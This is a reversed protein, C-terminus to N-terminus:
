MKQKILKQWAKTTSSIAEAPTKQKKFAAQLNEDLDRFILAGEPMLPRNRAVLLQQKFGQLIENKSLELNEYASKRTPLLNQEKAFRVQQQTSNIYAIFTAAADQQKSGRYLVYGHGGVPSGQEGKPGKPILAIGLQQKNKFASGSLIETVAWPGNFMMAYKGEKFGTMANTYANVFDLKEPSVKDVFVLDLFAQLAAQSAASDLSVKRNQEDILNGGYSWLHPLFFYGKPILAFGYHNNKADSLKKASAVFEDMTTPASLKKKAFLDKNYLLALTDTVQPVGWIKNQINFYRFATEIYDAQEDKTIYKNMEQLVGIQALESVWAIDARLVDPADGAMAAIKYKNLAEGFAIYQANVEIEPHAKAFEALIVNLTKVEENNMTHWFSVKAKKTDALALKHFSGLCFLLVAIYSFIVLIFSELFKNNKKNVLNIM